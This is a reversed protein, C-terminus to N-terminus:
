IYDIPSAPKAKDPFGPGQPQMEEDDDDDNELMGPGPTVTVKLRRFARVVKALRDLVKSFTAEDEEHVLEWVWGESLSFCRSEGLLADLVRVRKELVRARDATL